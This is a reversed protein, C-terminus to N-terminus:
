CKTGVLLGNDLGIITLKNICIHIVWGWHTLPWRISMREKKEATTPWPQCCVNCHHKIYSSWPVYFWWCSPQKRLLKNLSVDFFVVFSPMAPWIHLSNVMILPEGSLTGTIYFTDGHWAMLMHVCSDPVFEMTFWLSICLTQHNTVIIWVHRESNLDHIYRTYPMDKLTGEDDSSRDCSKRLALSAVRFSVPLILQYWIVDYYLCHVYYQHQM